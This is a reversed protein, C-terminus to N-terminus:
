NGANALQRKQAESFDKMRNKIQVFMGATTSDLDIDRKCYIGMDVLIGTFDAMTLAKHEQNKLILDKEDQLQNISVRLVKSATIIRNLDGRYEEDNEPDLKYKKYGLERLKEVYKPEYNYWLVQVCLEVMSLKCASQGIQTLLGCVDDYNQEKSESQYKDLLNGWATKLEEDTPTGSKVLSSYNHNIMCEIFFIRISVAYIDDHFLAAESKFEPKNRKRFRM